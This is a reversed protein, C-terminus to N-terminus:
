TKKHEYYIDEPFLAYVMKDATKFMLRYLVSENYANVNSYFPSFM